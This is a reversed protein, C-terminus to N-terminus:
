PKRRQTAHCAYEGHSIERERRVTKEAASLNHYNGLYKILGNVRDGAHVRRRGNRWRAYIGGSEANGQIELRVNKSVSKLKRLIGVSM